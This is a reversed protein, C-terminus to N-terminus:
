KKLKAILSVQFGSSKDKPAYDGKPIKSIGFNYRAGVGIRGTIFGAGVGWSFIPQSIVATIIL